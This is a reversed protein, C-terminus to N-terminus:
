FRGRRALAPLGPWADSIGLFPPVAPSRRTGEDPDGSVFPRMYTEFFREAIGQAKFFERFDVLAVDSASHADFPYRKHVAKRYFSYLESQYREDAVKQREQENQWMADRLGMAKDMREDEKQGRQYRDMTNFGALFGEALGSVSM